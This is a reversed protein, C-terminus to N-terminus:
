KGLVCGVEEDTEIGVEELLDKKKKPYGEMISNVIDMCIRKRKKYAKMNKEHEKEIKEKTEASIPVSNEQLDKLKAKLKEVEKTLRNKEARAEDTTLSNQFNKLESETAKIRDDNATFKEQLDNIKQDMQSIDEQLKSPDTDNEQIICYVKQKGYVKEKIKEDQTLQDLAKQVVTKGFEKHLNQVIDNASYPRNQNKLYKYVAETAM